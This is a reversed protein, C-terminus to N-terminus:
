RRRQPTAGTCRGARPIMDQCAGLRGLRWDLRPATVPRGATSWAGVLRHPSPGAGGYIHSSRVIAVVLWPARVGGQAPLERPCYSLVRLDGYAGAGDKSCGRPARAGAICRLPLRRCAHGMHLRLSCRSALFCKSIHSLVLASTPWESRPTAKGGGRPDFSFPDRLEAGSSLWARGCRSSVVCLIRGTRGSARPEFRRRGSGM